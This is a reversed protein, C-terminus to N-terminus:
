TIILCEGNIVTDKGKQEKYASWTNTRHAIFTKDLSTATKDFWQCFCQKKLFIVSEGM